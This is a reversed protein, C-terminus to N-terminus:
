KNNILLEFEKKIGHNLVQVMQLAGWNGEILVWGNNSLAFDFGIYKHKHLLNHVEKSIEILDLWQPIIQSKFSVKSDPHVEYINGYEDGGNSIIEGTDKDVISVIGGSGGNDVIAGNRGCRFFSKFIIPGKKTMISAIRITNVSTENWKAMLSNQVIFPEIIFESKYGMLEKYLTDVDAKKEIKFVFINRGCQGRNPKIIIRDNFECYKKLDDLRSNSNFFYVKRDFYKSVKKYFEFKDELEYFFDRWHEGYYNILLLDKAKISLYEERESYKKLWFKFCFYENPTVGHLLYSLIIDVILKDIYQKDNLQSSTLFVNLQKAIADSMIEGGWIKESLYKDKRIAIFWRNLYPIQLIIKKLVLLLNM